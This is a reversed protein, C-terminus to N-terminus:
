LGQSMLIQKLMDSRSKSSSTSSWEQLSLRHVVIGQSNLFRDRRTDYRQRVARLHHPGDVELNFKVAPFYLDLEFGCDHKYNSDMCVGMDRITAQVSHEFRSAHKSPVAQFKKYMNSIDSPIHHEAAMMHLTSIIPSIELSVDTVGRKDWDISRLQNILVNHVRQATESEFHHSGYLSKQFYQSSLQAPNAGLESIYLELERLLESVEASDLQGQLGMLADSVAQANLLGGSKRMQQLKITLLSLLQRTEQTHGIGQLGYLANGVEQGNLLEKSQQVKLTLARLMAKALAGDELMQFGFLVNGLGQADFAHRELQQLLWQSESESLRSMPLKWRGIRNMLMSVSVMSLRENTRHSEAIEQRLADARRHKPLAGVRKLRVQLPEYTPNAAPPHKTPTSSMLRSCTHSASCRPLKQGAAFAGRLMSVPSRGRTCKMMTDPGSNLALCVHRLGALFLCM